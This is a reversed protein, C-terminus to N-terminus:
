GIENGVRRAKRGRDGDGSMAIVAPQGDRDVIITGANRRVHAFVHELREQPEVVRAILVLAAGPRPKAIARSIARECPPSMVSPSLGSPPNRALTRTGTQNSATGTTSRM